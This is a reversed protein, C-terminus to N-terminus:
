YLLSEGHGAAGTALKGIADSILKQRKRHTMKNYSDVFEFFGERSGFLGGIKREIDERLQEGWKNGRPSFYAVGLEEVPINGHDCVEALFTREYIYTSRPAQFHKPRRQPHIVRPRRFFTGAHAVVTAHELFAEELIRLLPLRTSVGWFFGRDRGAGHMYEHFMTSRMKTTPNTMSERNGYLNAVGIVTSTCFAIKQDGGSHFADMGQLLYRDTAAEVVPLAFRPFLGDRVLRETKDLTHGAFQKRDRYLSNTLDATRHLSWRCLTEVDHDSGTGVWGVIDNVLPKDLTHEIDRSATPKDNQTFGSNIRQLKAQEDLNESRCLGLAHKRLYQIGGRTYHPDPNDKVLDAGISYEEISTSPKLLKDSHKGM